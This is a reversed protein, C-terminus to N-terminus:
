AGCSRQMQLLGHGYVADHGPEGLDEAQGLLARRVSAPTQGKRNLLSAIAATVYPAAFSTGSRAESSGDVDATVLGVGPAAIDIHMGRGARHYVHRESNVATVAIVDKYASPYQPAAQPGRNGVAAVTLIQRGHVRDLASELLQNAAGAFSMNIVKVRRAALVDLAAVLDWADMREDGLKGRHFADVAMLRARPM